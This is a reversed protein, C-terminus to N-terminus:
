DESGMIPPIKSFYKKMLERLETTFGQLDIETNSELDGFLPGVAFTVFDCPFGSSTIELLGENDEENMRSYHIKLNVANNM